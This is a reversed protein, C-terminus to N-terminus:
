PLASAIHRAFVRTITEEEQKPNVLNVFIEYRGRRFATGYFNHSKWSFGEDGLNGESGKISVKSKKKYKSAVKEEHELRGKFRKLGEGAAKKSPHLLISVKVIQGSFEWQSINIDRSGEMPAIPRHLWGPLQEALKREVAGATAALEQTEEQASATLAFLVTLGLVIVATFTNRMVSRGDKM